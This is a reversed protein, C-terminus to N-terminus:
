DSISEALDLMCYNMETVYQHVVLRGVVSGVALRKWYSALPHLPMSKHHLRIKELMTVCATVREHRQMM